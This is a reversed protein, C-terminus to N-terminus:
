PPGAAARDEDIEDPTLDLLRCAVLMRFRVEFPSLAGVFWRRIATNASEVVAWVVQSQHEDIPGIAASVIATHLRHLREQEETFDPDVIGSIRRVLAMLAPSRQDTAFMRFLYRATRERASGVLQQEPKIRALADELARQTVAYLVHQKSPFYRYLTALSVEALAPLESM